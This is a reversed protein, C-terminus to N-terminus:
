PQEGAEGRTASSPAFRLRRQVMRQVFSCRRLDTPLTLGADRWIPARDSWEVVHAIAHFALERTSPQMCLVLIGFAGLVDKERHVSYLDIVQVAALLARADTGTLPALCHKGLNSRLWPFLTVTPPKANM